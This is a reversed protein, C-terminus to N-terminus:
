GQEEGSRRSARSRLHEGLSRITEAAVIAHGRRNVHVKDESYILQDGSKPHRNFDVHVGGHSQSVRRTVEGLRHTREQLGARMGDPVFATQSLDFLGFTVIDAGAEALRGIILELEFQVAEADFSRRLMDNGGCVVVALDPAFAVAPAVQLQRVEAARLEREGLNLYSTAGTVRHLSEALRDAWSLDAYGDVPDGVGAAVSDGMVVLRRWPAGALHQDAQEATLCWPDAQEAAIGPATTPTTTPTLTTSM